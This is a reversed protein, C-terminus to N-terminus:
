SPSSVFKTALRVSLDRRNVGRKGAHQRDDVPEADLLRDLGPETEIGLDPEFADEVPLVVEVGVQWGAILNRLVLLRHDATALDHEVHRVPRRALYTNGQQM